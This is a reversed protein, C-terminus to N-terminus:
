GELFGAVARVFQDARTIPFFHGGDPLILTEAGGVLRGLAESLHAPAVMDDRAGIALTPATVRHLDALRDHRLIAAIRALLIEPDPVRARAAEETITVLAPHDRIWWPPYLMLASSQLYLAPGGARLIASRTAFLSEFYADPAAWTGSLVLRDLRGPHDLAITQGVAGGTSHGVLHAKELGLHDLLALVDGAMQGISFDIREQSSRGCGRHDHLIVTFREALAPLVPNWFEALGGLGPVLLLPPGSGALEYHLHGGDALRLEAM